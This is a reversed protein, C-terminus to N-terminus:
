PFIKDCGAHPFVIQLDIALRRRPIKEQFCCGRDTRECAIREIAGRSNVRVGNKMRSPRAHHNQSDQEADHDSPPGPTQGSRDGGDDRRRCKSRDWNRAWVGSTLFSTGM